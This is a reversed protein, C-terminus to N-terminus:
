AHVAFKTQIEAMKAATQQFQQERRYHSYIRMTVDPTAHGALYQVEKVSLGNEIWRTICTHRLQHPHVNFERRTVLDWLRRFSSETLFKGNKM